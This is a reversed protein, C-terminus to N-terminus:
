SRGCIQIKAHYARVSRMFEADVIKAVHDPYYVPLQEVHKAREKAEGIIKTLYADREEQSTLKKLADEFEMLKKARERWTRLFEYVVFVWMQSLAMLERYKPGQVNGPDARQEDLVKSEWLRLVSIEVRAINQAQMGLYVDDTIPIAAFWTHLDFDKERVKADGM